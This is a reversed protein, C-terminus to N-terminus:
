APVATLAIDQAAVTGATALSLEARAPQYGPATVAVAREGAELAHLEYRGDAGTWAYEGSGVVAVRAMAVPRGAASVRGRVRTPELAMDAAALAPRGAADVIVSVTATRSAYRSGARPLHARLVYDGAALDCVVFRGAVDTVLRDPRRELNAWAAGAALAQLALWRTWAPPGSEITVRAGALAGGSAADSVAGAIAVHRRVEDRVPM